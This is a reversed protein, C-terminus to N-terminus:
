SEQTAMKLGESAILRKPARELAKEFQIKAEKMKNMDILFEGYLENSPKVIEPPGFMFNTEEELKTAKQLWEEAAIADKNRMALMASLEMEMVHARDVEAHTPKQNYRSVGSCMQAGGVTVEAEANERLLKMDAIVNELKENDKARYALYGKLFHQVAKSGVRLDEDDVLSEALEDEWDGTEILYAAKMSILHSRARSSPLEQTFTEMENVMEKAKEFDGKQLYGYMLWKFAHYGRADNDLSKENIRAVSAEYSAINSNIVEDWMGLAIYIHSPMHLAHEADPAVKSYSNAANLAKTANDPDDYSHILYHLAGPHNPNESIIGQAIQAGKEYIEYDRGSKTSGLLSLAYFARVEHNDPYKQYLAEMHDKYQIDKEKKVGEAFLIEAGQLLDKEFETKALSLREESTPALKELAAIAEKTYQQRWLPHNKTMAEGWYAMVMTSDIKQAEVFKEAADDYEFSHLLLLGDIFVPVAEDSGTVNISITGLESGSLDSNETSTMDPTETNANEGCQFFLFSFLFVTLLNLKKM